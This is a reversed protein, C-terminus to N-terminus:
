SESETEEIELANLTVQYAALTGSGALSWSAPTAKQLNLGKGALRDLAALIDDIASSQTAPTGAIVDLTWTPTPPGWTAWEVTPPEIFVAVKGATPRVLQADISVSSVLGDLMDTLTDMLAARQEQINM